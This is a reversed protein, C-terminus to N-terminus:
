EAPKPKLEAEIEEWADHASQLQAQTLKDFTTGDEAIGKEVLKAVFLSKGCNIRALFKTIGVSLEKLAPAGKKPPQQQQEPEEQQEKTEEQQEEPPTEVDHTKGNGEGTDSTTTTTAADEIATKAPRTPINGVVGQAMMGGAIDLARTGEKDHVFAGSDANLADSMEASQPMFPALRRVATKMWMAAENTNWPSDARNTGKASAKARMVERRNCVIFAAGGGDMNCIAYAYKLPGPDEEGDYAKHVLRPHLGEDYDFYDKEYVAKARIGTVKPHRYALEIYGQYGIILTAVKTGSKNDNFPVLAAKKGDIELGMQAAVMIGGMVSEPSCEFLQPLKNMSTLVVRLLRDPTVHKPLALALQAKFGQGQVLDMFSRRQVALQNPPQNAM